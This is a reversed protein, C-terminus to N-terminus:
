PLQVTVSGKAETVNSLSTSINLGAQRCKLGWPLTFSLVRRNLWAILSAVHLWQRTEVDEDGALTSLGDGAM